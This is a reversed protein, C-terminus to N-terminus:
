AGNPDTGRGALAAEFVDLVRKAHAGNEVFVLLAPPTAARPRARLGADDAARTAADLGVFLEVRAREPQVFVTAVREDGRTVAYARAGEPTAEVDPDADTVTVDAFPGLERGTLESALLQAIRVGDSLEREVM